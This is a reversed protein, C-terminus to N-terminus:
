GELARLLNAPDDDDPRDAEPEAIPPEIPSTMICAIWKYEGDKFGNETAAVFRLGDSEDGPEYAAFEIAKGPALLSILEKIEAEIGQRQEVREQLQGTLVEPHKMLYARQGVLVRLREWGKARAAKLDAMIPHDM